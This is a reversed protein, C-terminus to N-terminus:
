IVWEASNAESSSDVPVFGRGGRGGPRLVEYRQAAHAGVEGFQDFRDMCPCDSFGVPIAIEEGAQGGTQLFWM